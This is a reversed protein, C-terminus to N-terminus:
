EKDKTLQGKTRRKRPKRDKSGKPRGGKNKPKAISATKEAKATTQPKQKPIKAKKALLLAKLVTKETAEELSVDSFQWTDKSGVHVIFTRSDFINNKLDLIQEHDAGTIVVPFISTDYLDNTAATIVENLLYQRALTNKRAHDASYASEISGKILTVLTSSNTIVKGLSLTHPYPISTDEIMRSEQMNRGIEQLETAVVNLHTTSFRDGLGKTKNALKIYLANANVTYCGAVEKSLRAFEDAQPGKVIIALGNSKLAAKYDILLEILKQEAEKKKAMMGPFTKPNWNNLDIQTVSRTEKFKDVIGKIEEKTLM